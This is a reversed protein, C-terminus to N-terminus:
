HGERVAMEMQFPINYELWSLSEPAKQQLKLVTHLHAVTCRIMDTKKKAMVAVYLTFCRIWTSITQINQQLKQSQIAQFQNLAGVLSDQLSLAPKGQEALRVSWPALLFEEMDVFQLNWAKEVLKMLLTSVGKEVLYRLPKGEAKDKPDATLPLAM